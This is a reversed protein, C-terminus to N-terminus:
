RVYEVPLVGKSVGFVAKLCTTTSLSEGGGSNKLFTTSFLSQITPVSCGSFEDTVRRDYSLIYESFM